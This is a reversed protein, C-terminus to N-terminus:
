SDLGSDFLKFEKENLILLEFFLQFFSPIQELLMKRFLNLNQHFTFEKIKQHTVNVNMVKSTIEPFLKIKLMIKRGSTMLLSYMSSSSIEKFFM